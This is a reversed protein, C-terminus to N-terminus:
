KDGQPRNSGAQCRRHIRSGDMTRPYFRPLRFIPRLFRAFKQSRSLKGVKEAERAVRSGEKAFKEAERVVKSGEKEIELGEHLISQATQGWAGFAFEFVRFFLFFPFVALIDLWYKRVFLPVKRVRIYKFM